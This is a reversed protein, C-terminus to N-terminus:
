TIQIVKVNYNNETYDQLSPHRYDEQTYSNQVYVSNGRKPTEQSPTSQYAQTSSSRYTQQPTQQYHNHSNYNQNYETLIILASMQTIRSMTSYWGADRYLEVDDEYLSYYPDYHSTEYPQSTNYLVKAATTATPIAQRSPSSTTVEM